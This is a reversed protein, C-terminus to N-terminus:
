EKFEELPANFDPAMYVLTGKGSGFCARPKEPSTV